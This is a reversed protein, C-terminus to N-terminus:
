NLTIRLKDRISREDMRLMIYIDLLLYIKPEDYM